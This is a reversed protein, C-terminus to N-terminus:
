KKAGESAPHHKTKRSQTNRTKWGRTEGLVWVVPLVVGVLVYLVGFAVQVPVPNLGFYGLYTGTIAFVGATFQVGMVRLWVRAPNDFILHGALVGGTTFMFSLLLAEETVISPLFPTVSFTAVGAALVFGIGILIRSIIKAVTKGVQM